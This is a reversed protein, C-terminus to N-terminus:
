AAQRLPLGPTASGQLSRYGYVAIAERQEAEDHDGVREWTYLQVAQMDKRLQQQWQAKM